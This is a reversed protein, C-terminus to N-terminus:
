QTQPAPAAPDPTKGAEQEKMLRRDEQWIEAVTRTPRTDGDSAPMWRYPIFCLRHLWYRLFAWVNLPALSGVEAKM